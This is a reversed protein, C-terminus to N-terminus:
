EERIEKEVRSIYDDEDAAPPPQQASGQAVMATPDKEPKEPRGAGPQRISTLYRWFLFGGLLVALIPLLWVLITFGEFRPQALVRAGHREVFYQEIEAQTRGESLQVRIEERWDQCAQTPCADLPTNECIPCYLDRAIENVEDDTVPEQAAAPLVVFLAAIILLALVSLRSSVGAGRRNAASHYRRKFLNM